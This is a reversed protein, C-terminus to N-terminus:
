VPPLYTIQIGSHALYAHSLSSTVLPTGDMNYIAAATCRLIRKDSRTVNARLPTASVFYFDDRDDFYSRVADAISTDTSTTDSLFANDRLRVTLQVTVPYSPIPAVDFRTAYCLVDSDSMSRKVAAVWRASSAWSPDSVYVTSGDVIIRRVGGARLASLVLADDIPGYQGTAFALAYKLIDADSFGESGGGVEYSTVLLKKDFLEDAAVLVAYGAGIVFPTNAAVGERVAEIPVVVVDQNAAVFVDSSVSYESQELPVIGNPDPNRRFKKGKRISGALKPDTSATRDLVLSGVAKTPGIDVPLESESAIYSKLQDGKALKLTNGIAGDALRAIALESQARLGEFIHAYKGQGLNVASFARPRHEVLKAIAPAIINASTPLIARKSTTM